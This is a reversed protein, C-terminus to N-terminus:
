NVPSSISFSENPIIAANNLWNVVMKIAEPKGWLLNPVNILHELNKGLYINENMADNYSQLLPAKNTTNWQIWGQGLKQKVVINERTQTTDM